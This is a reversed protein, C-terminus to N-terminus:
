PSPAASSSSSSFWCHSLCRFGPRQDSNSLCRALLNERFGLPPCEVPSRCTIRMSCANLCWGTERMHHITGDPSVSISHEDKLSNTIQTIKNKLSKFINTQATDASRAMYINFNGNARDSTFLLTSDNLWVPETDRYAINSINITRSKEKDDERVFVEGRVTLAINKGNPSVAYDNIDRSFTKMEIPDLREDASISVNLKQANGKDTKMIYLHVDKEFVITTGDSSISFARISENTYKNLKESKGAAKGNADLKQKYINSLGGDRSLYYINNSDVWQPTIDNFVSVPM